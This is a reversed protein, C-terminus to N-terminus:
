NPLDFKIDMNDPNLAAHSISEMRATSIYENELMLNHFSPTYQSDRVILFYTEKEGGSADVIKLSNDKYVLTPKQSICYRRNGLQGDLGWGWTFCDGEYTIVGYHKVGAFAKVPTGQIGFIQHTDFSDNMMFVFSSSTIYLFIDENSTCFIVKDIEPGKEGSIFYIQLKSNSCLIAIHKTTLCLSEPISGNLDINMKQNTIFINNEKDIHAYMSDLSTIFKVNEIKFKTDTFIGEATLYAPKGKIFCVQKIPDPCSIQTTQSIPESWFFAKGERNISYSNKGFSGISLFELSNTPLGMINENSAKNYKLQPGFTPGCVYFHVPSSLLSKDM